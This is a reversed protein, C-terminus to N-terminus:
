IMHFAKTLERRVQLWWKLHTCLELKADESNENNVTVRAIMGELMTSPYKEKEDMDFFLKKLAGKKTLRGKYVVGWPKQLIKGDSIKNLGPLERDAAPVSQKFLKAIEYNYHSFNRLYSGMFRGIMRQGRSLSIQQSIRAQNKNYFKEVLVVFDNSNVVPFDAVTFTSEKKQEGRRVHYTYNPYIDEFLPGTEIKDIGVIKLCSWVDTQEAALNAHFRAKQEQFKRREAPDFEVDYINTAFLKPNFPIDLQLETSNEDSFSVLPLRDFVEVSPFALNMITEYTWIKNVPGLVEKKGARDRSIVYLHRLKEYEEEKKKKEEDKSLEEIIKKGKDVSPGTEHPTQSTTTKTSTAAQASSAGIKIGGSFRKILSSTTETTMASTRGWTPPVSTTSTTLTQLSTFGFIPKTTQATTTTTQTIPAFTTITATPAFTLISQRTTLRSGEGGQSSPMSPKPAGSLRSVLTLLPAIDKRISETTQAVLIKMQQNSISQAEKYASLEHVDFEEAARKSLNEVSTSVTQLKAIVETHATNLKTLMDYFKSNQQDQTQQAKAEVQKEVAKCRLDVKELVNRTMQKVDEDVIRVADDIKKSFKSTLSEEFSTLSEALHATTVGSGKDSSYTTQAQLLINLKANLQRFQKMSVLSTDPEDDDEDQIHIPATEFYDEEENEPKEPKDLSSYDAMDDSFFSHLPPPLETTKTFLPATNFPPPSPPDKTTQTDSTLNTDVNSTHVPTETQSLTKETLTLFPTSSTITTTATETPSPPITTDEQNLHEDEGEDDVDDDDSRPTPPRSSPAAKRKSPKVAKTKKRTKQKKGPVESLEAQGKRKGGKAKPLESEIVRTFIRLPAPTTITQRYEILTLNDDPVKCLMAEPIQAIFEMRYDSSSSSPIQVQSFEHVPLDTPVPVKEHAYVAQVILAWFRTSAIDTARKAHNIYTTFDTWLISAYDVPVNYYIGYHLQLFTYAASDLGSTRGSLSRLIISFFYGWVSPLKNKKFSSMTRTVPTHGMDNLMNLIESQSAMQFRGSVPLHLIRAFQDKKVTVTKKKDDVDLIDFSVSTGDANLRATHHARNVWLKPVDATATMAHSLPSHKLCIVLMAMPLSYAEPDLNTIHNASMPNLDPVSDVDSVTFSIEDTAM